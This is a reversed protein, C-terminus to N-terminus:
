IVKHWRDLMQNFMEKQRESMSSNIYNKILANLIDDFTAHDNESKQPLFFYLIKLADLTETDMRQTSTKKGKKPRGVRKTIDKTSISSFDNSGEIDVHKSKLSSKHKLISNIKKDEPM